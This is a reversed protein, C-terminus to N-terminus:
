RQADQQSQPHPQQREQRPFPGVDVLAIFVVALIGVIGFMSWAPIDDDREYAAIKRLLLVLVVALLCGSFSAALTVNFLTTHDMGGVYHM